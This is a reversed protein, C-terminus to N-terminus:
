ELCKKGGNPLINALSLSQRYDITIEEGCDGGKCGSIDKVAVLYIDGDEHLVMKSNPQKAHNTYRGAPTRKGLIRAPAIIDGPRFGSASFLGKGEIGSDFVAVGSYGFPMETQDAENESQERVTKEYLGYEALMLSYDERDEERCFFEIGKSSENAALFVSSKDLYTKELVEVNREDTSYINQWVVDEVIYGIKRGPKGVFTCPARMETLTRDQNIIVVVGQVMVNMHEKRQKHGIVLAGKPMRVERIYLGPGFRHFVPCDVQPHALMKKEIEEISITPLHRATQAVVWGNNDNIM